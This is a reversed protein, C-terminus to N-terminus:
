KKSAMADLMKEVLSTGETGADGVSAGYQKPLLKSALFKRTDIRLRSRNVHEGNLQWGIPEGNEGLREMWDNMGDDAIELMEEAMLDAQHLKAKNYLASFTDYRYRWRQITDHTPLHPFVECLKRLGFTNTATLECIERAIEENYDTPRGGKSPDKNLLKQKEDAMLKPPTKQNRKVRSKTSAGKKASPKKTSKKEAM